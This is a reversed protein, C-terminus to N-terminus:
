QPPKLGGVLSSLESPLPDVDGGMAVTRMCSHCEFIRLETGPGATIRALDTRRRCQPCM